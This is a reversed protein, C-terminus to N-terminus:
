VLVPVLIGRWKLYLGSGNTGGAIRREVRETGGLGYRHMEVWMEVMEDNKRRLILPGLFTADEEWAIRMEETPLTIVEM